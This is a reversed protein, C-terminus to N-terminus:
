KRFDLGHILYAKLYNMFDTWGTCHSFASKLDSQKWGWESVQVLVRGRLRSLEVRVRTHYGVGEAKWHFEIRETPRCATLHLRATDFGKWEWLVIGLEPTMDGHVADVFYKKLHKAETIANWVQKQSTKYTRAVSFGVRGRGMKIAPM